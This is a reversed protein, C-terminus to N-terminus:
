GVLGVARMVTITGIALMVSMSIPAIVRLDEPRPAVLRVLREGQFRQPLDALLSGALTYRQLPTTWVASSGSRRDDKLDDALPHVDGDPM